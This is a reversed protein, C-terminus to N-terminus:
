GVILVDKNRFDYNLYKETLTIAYFPLRNANELEKKYRAIRNEVWTQSFGTVEIYQKRFKDLVIRNLESSTLNKM